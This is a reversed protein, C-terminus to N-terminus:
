LLSLVDGKDVIAKAIGGSHQLKDNAANVIADVKYSTLNGMATFVAVGSSLIVKSKKYTPTDSFTPRPSTVKATIKEDM